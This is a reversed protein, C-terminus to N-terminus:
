TRIWVIVKPREVEDPLACDDLRAPIVFIDEPRMELLKDLAHKIERQFFSRKAVSTQSLCIIVFDSSTLSREIVLKFDQGPLLDEDDLWPQYGQATLRQHIERAQARDESAYSIFIKLQEMVKAATERKNLNCKPAQRRKPAALQNLRASYLLM